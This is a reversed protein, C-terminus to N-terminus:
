SHHVKVEETQEATEKPQKKLTFILPAIQAVVILACLGLFGWIFFEASNSREEAAALAPIAIAAFFVSILIIRASAKMM